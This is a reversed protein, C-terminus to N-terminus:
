YGEDFINSVSVRGNKDVKFKGGQERGKGDTPRKNNMDRYGSKDFGQRDRGNRDYGERNYGERDTGYRNFGERDYGGRDYGKRDFGERDRGTFDFGEDDYGSKFVRVSIPNNNGRATWFSCNAFVRAETSYYPGDENYEEDEDDYDEHYEKNLEEARDDAGRWDGGFDELFWDDDESYVVYCSWEAIEQQEFGEGWGDSMQGTLYDELAPIISKPDVGPAVHTIVRLAGLGFNLDSNWTLDIKTIKGELDEDVYDALDQANDDYDIMDKMKSQYNVDWADIDQLENCDGGEMQRDTLDPSYYNWYPEFDMVIVTEDEYASNIRRRM